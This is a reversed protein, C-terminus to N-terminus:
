RVTSAWSMIAAASATPKEYIAAHAAGPILALRSGPIDQHMKQAMEYPYLPDEVGTLILVPVNFKTSRSDPRNALTKCGGLSGNLTGQKVIATLGAVDQPMTMRSVGTLMNPLLAPIQSAVGKAAVMKAFGEWEMMEPPAAPSTTTDILIMGRFRSPAERYMEEIVPGGMSMGGIIAKNIKLHDMVGLMDKAYVSVSADSDPTTSAGFGRLDPCVVTYRRSLIPSVKSFLKGSLPYGHILMMAPGHGTVVYHITAGNVSVSDANARARGLGLTTLSLAAVLCALLQTKKM